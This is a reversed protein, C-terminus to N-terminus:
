YNRQFHCQYEYRNYVTSGKSCFVMIYCQTPLISSLLIYKLNQESNGSNPNDHLLNGYFIQSDLNELKRHNVTNNKSLIEIMQLNM